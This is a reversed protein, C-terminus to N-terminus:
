WALQPFFVATRNEYTSCGGLCALYKELCGRKERGREKGRGREREREGGERERGREGEGERERGRKLKGQLWM